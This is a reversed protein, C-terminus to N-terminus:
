FPEEDDIIEAVAPMFIVLIVTSTFVVTSLFTHKTAVSIIGGFIVSFIVSGIILWKVLKLVPTENQENM